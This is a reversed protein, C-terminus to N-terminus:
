LLNSKKLAVASVAGLGVISMAIALLSSRGAATVPTLFRSTDELPGLYRDNAGTRPLFVGVNSVATPIGVPSNGIYARAENVVTTGRPLNENIHGTYVFTRLEGPRLTDIYWNLRDGRYEANGPNPIHMQEQLFADEIVINQITQSSTNRVRIDFTVNDGPRVNSKDASKEVAVGSVYGSAAHHYNYAQGNNVPYWQNSVNAGSVRTQDRSIMGQVYSTAALNMGDPADSRVRVTFLLDRTGGPAVFLGPWRVNKGDWYGGESANVFETYQPIAANVAANTDLWGSHNDIHLTYTLLMGRSAITRNDTLSSGLITQTVQGNGVTSRDFGAISGAKVTLQIPYANPVMSHVTATITFVKTQKPQITVDRWVLEKGITEAIPSSPGSVILAEPITSRVHVTAAVNEPNHVTVIYTLVERPMVRERNDTVKVVLSNKAYQENGQTKIMTTDTATASDAVVRAVLLLGASANPAVNAHVYFSREHGKFVAVNRWVAAGEMAIGDDSVYTIGLQPPLMASLNVLKVAEREQRIRIQYVLTGNPAITDKGDTVSVFVGTDPWESTDDISSCDFDTPYDIRGDTDNDIGDFCAPRDALATAPAAIMGIGGISLSLSLLGIISFRSVRM